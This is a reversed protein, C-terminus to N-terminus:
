TSLYLTGNPHQECMRQIDWLYTVAGKADGWGNPPDFEHLEDIHEAGWQVAAAVVPAIDEGRLGDLDRLLLTDEDVPYPGSKWSGDPQRMSVTRGSANFEKADRGCWERAQPVEDLAATLCKAWIGSVNSTYNGCRAYGQKTVMVNGAHGDVGLAPHRDAFYPEIHHPEAGGTAINIGFDYSM